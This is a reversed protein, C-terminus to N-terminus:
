SFVCLFNFKDFSGKNTTARTVFYNYKLYLWPKNRSAKFISFSARYIGYVTPHIIGLIILKSSSLSFLREPLFSRQEKISPFRLQFFFLRCLFFKIQHLKKNLFIFILHTLSHFNEQPSEIFKPNNSWAEFSNPNERNRSPFFWDWIYSNEKFLIKKSLNFNRCFMTFDKQFLIKRFNIRLEFIWFNLELVM